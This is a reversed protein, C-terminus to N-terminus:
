MYFLILCWFASCPKVLVHLHFLVDVLLKAKFYIECMRAMALDKSDPM